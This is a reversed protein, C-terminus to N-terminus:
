FRSIALKGLSWENALVRIGQKLLTYNIATTDFAQHLLKCAVGFVESIGCSPWCNELSRSGIKSTQLADAVEASTWIRSDLM